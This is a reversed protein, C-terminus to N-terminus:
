LNSLYQKIESMEISATSSWSFKQSDIEVSKALYKSLYDLIAVSINTEFDHDLNFTNEIGIVEPIGGVRSGYVQCGCALAELVVLPLGETFSPLVLVDICNMLDPISSPIQNGFFTVNLDLSKFEEQLNKKYKGDGIIWFCTSYNSSIKKFIKPLSMPNKEHVLGGVFGIVRKGQVNYKSKLLDIKESSYKYFEQSVGNYLVLKNNNATLNYSNKMLANSVFFNKEAENLLKITIKKIYKNIFPETNIDCGHWTIFYPMKYKKHASSAIKACDYSHAIILDCDFFRQILKKTYLPTILEKLKFKVQLLYDIISFPIWYVNYKTGELYIENILEQKKSGRLLRVIFNDYVQVLIVEINFDAIESLYKIRNRVSNFYGKQDQFNGNFIITVKM